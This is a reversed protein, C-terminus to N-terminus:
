HMKMKKNKSCKDQYDYLFNFNNIRTSVESILTKKYHLVYILNKMNKKAANKM